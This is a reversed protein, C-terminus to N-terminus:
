RTYRMAFRQEGRHDFVYLDLTGPGTDIRGFGFPVIRKGEYLPADKGLRDEEWAVDPKRQARGFNKEPVPVGAHGLCACLSPANILRPDKREQKPKFVVARHEHGWIWADITEYLGAAQLMKVAVDSHQGDGKRSSTPQHHTLLIAGKALDRTQKMFVVQESTLVGNQGGYDSITPSGFLTESLSPLEWSTDLGYAQWHKSEILFYSSPRGGQDRHWSLFRPETLLTDFYGYGGSYMDHNGNLSWSGISIADGPGVPWLGVMREKYEDPEGVYYVDGLHIVHTQRGADPVEIQQRIQKAVKAALPLGTGWDGFVFLRLEEPSVATRAPHSNFARRERFVGGLKSWFGDLGYRVDDNEVFGGIAARRVKEGPIAKPRALKLLPSCDDNEAPIAAESRVGRRVPAHAAKNSPAVQQRAMAERTWHAQLGCTVADTPIYGAELRDKHDQQARKIAHDIAFVAQNLQEPTIKHRALLEQALNRKNEDNSRFLRQLEGLKDRQKKLENLVFNRQLYESIMMGLTPDASSRSQGRPSAGAM